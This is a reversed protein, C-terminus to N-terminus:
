QRLKAKEIAEKSGPAGDYLRYKAIRPDFFFTYELKGKKSITPDYKYIDGVKTPNYGDIESQYIVIDKGIGAKSEELNHLIAEPQEEGVKDFRKWQFVLLLDTENMVTFYSRWGSNRIRYDIIVDNKIPSVIPKFAVDLERGPSSPVPLPVSLNKTKGDYYFFFNYNGMYGLEAAKAEKKMRIAEDIAFNLRNVTVIADLITDANLHSRYIKLSYKETAPIELAAEIDRKMRAEFPINEESDKGKEVLETSDGDGSCAIFFLGLLPLIFYHLKM